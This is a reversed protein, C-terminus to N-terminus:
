AAMSLACCPSTSSKVSLMTVQHNEKFLTPIWKILLYPDDAKIVGVVLTIFDKAHKEKISDECFVDTMDFESIHKRCRYLLAKIAVESSGCIDAIELNKFNFVEKLLFVSLQKETLKTLLMRVLAEAEGHKEEHIQEHEFQPIPATRQRRMKDIWNNHAIKKLLGINWLHSDNYKALANVITDQLLEEGDWKNQSLFFCYYSLQQYMKLFDQKEERFSTSPRACM